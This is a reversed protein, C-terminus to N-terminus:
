GQNKIAQGIHWTLRELSFNDIARKGSLPSSLFLPVEKDILKLTHYGMNNDFSIKGPYLVHYIIKSALANAVVIVIPKVDM